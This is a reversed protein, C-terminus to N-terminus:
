GKWLVGLVKDGRTRVPCAHHGLGGGTAGWAQPVIGLGCTYQGAM